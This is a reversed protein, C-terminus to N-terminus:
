VAVIWRYGKDKLKIKKFSTITTVENPKDENVLQLEAYSCEHNHQNLLMEISDNNTLTYADYAEMEVEKGLVKKGVELVLSYKISIL